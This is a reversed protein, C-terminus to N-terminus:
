ASPSPSGHHVMLMHSLMWLHAYPWRLSKGIMLTLSIMYNLQFFMSIDKKFVNIVSRVVGEIDNDKLSEINHAVDITTALQKGWVHRNNM